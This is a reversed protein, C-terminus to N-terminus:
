DVALLRETLPRPAPLWQAGDHYVAQGSADIRAAIGVSRLAAVYMREFGIEDTLGRVWCEHIRDPLDTGTTIRVRLALKAALIRAAATPTQKHRTRPHFHEWLVRRWRMDGLPGDMRPSLVWRMWLENEVEWNMLDRQLSALTVHDYLTRVTVQRMEASVVGKESAATALERALQLFLREEDLSPLLRRSWAISQETVPLRPLGLHIATTVTALLAAGITIRLIGRCQPHPAPVGKRMVRCVGTLALFGAPLLIWGYAPRVNLPDIPAASLEEACFEAAARRVLSQQFGLDQWRKPLRNMHVDIQHEQLMGALRRANEDSIGGPGDSFILWM